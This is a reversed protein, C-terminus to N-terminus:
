SVRFIARRLESVIWEGEEKSDAYMISGIMPKDNARIFEVTYKRSSSDPKLAIDKLQDRMVHVPRRAPFMYSIQLGASDAHVRRVLLALSILPFGALFLVVGSIIVYAILRFLPSMGDGTMRQLVIPAIAFAAAAGVVLFGYWKWLWSPFPVVIDIVGSQRDIRSTVHPPAQRVSRRLAEQTQDPSSQSTREVRVDYDVSSKTKQSYLELRWYFDKSSPECDFPVRMSFPLAVTEGGNIMPREIAQHDEWLLDDSSDSWRRWSSLRFRLPALEAVRRPARVVGSITGGLVGPLTQLELEAGRFRVANTTAAIALRLVLLGALAFFALVIFLGWSDPERKFYVIVAMTGLLGYWAIAFAWIIAAGCGASSSRARSAAPSASASM